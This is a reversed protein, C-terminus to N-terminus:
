NKLILSADNTALYLRSVGGSWSMVRKITMPNIGALRQQAFYDDDLFRQNKRLDTFYPYERSAYKYHPSHNTVNQFMSFIKKIMFQVSKEM